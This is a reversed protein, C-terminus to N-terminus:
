RRTPTPPRAPVASHRAASCRPSASTIPACRPPGIARHPTCRWSCGTVEGRLPECRVLERALRVAEDHDGRDSLLAVLCAPPCTSTESDNGLMSSGSTTSGADLLDGAYRDVAAVSRRSAPTLAAAPPPPWHRVSCRSTSRSQDAAVGVAGDPHHDGPLAGARPHRPPAHPPGQPPEDKGPGRDLGALLPVRAAPAGAAARPPAGPLRAAIACPRSSRDSRAAASILPWSASCGCASRKTTRRTDRRSRRRRGCM